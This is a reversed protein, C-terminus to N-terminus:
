ANRADDEERASARMEARMEDAHIAADEDYPHREYYSLRCEEIVSSVARIRIDRATPHTM